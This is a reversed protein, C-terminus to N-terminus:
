RVVLTVTTTHRLNGSVATITLVYTGRPTRSSTTVTMTSSNATTNNPAFTASARSPLGSASFTVAGTFGGTGTITLLYTTQGGRTVTRSSPSASITFDAVTVTVTTSHTNAGESGTVTVTYTGTAVSAGVNVTLTASNGASVATPNLSATPGSPSVGASLNVTGASGVLTTSITSTGSGGRQISLSTPSASITFDAPPPPATVTVTVTTSHTNAGESGTVTVTYAGTAVSAGVNVTLTSSNGASVAAPSVSATPGSPSVGASLNVTGASGVLTTSITSIGSGGQQTSLSTPSASITFDGGCTSSYTFQDALSTASAGDATTVIVDVTGCGSPAIATLQNPSTVIVNTAANSGFSVTTGLAFFDTGSVTVVTSGAGSTPSISTVAPASFTLRGAFTGWACGADSPPGTTTGNAAYESAVWVDTPNQPDIAAGSYDGWRSAGATGFCPNMNYTTEGAKITQASVVTQVPASAPQGTIRVGVYGVNLPTTTISSINYVVYMSGGADMSLAPYYLDSGNSAIDFSQNITPGSTLVQILRSCPRIVSDNAPVCADNGGTWLVGNEWVATLFRDDNTAISAALGPQDANPPQSTAALAPDAENWALNGGLPTGTIWALGFTPSGKNCGLTSCDSNNYAIYAPSGSSLQVAPVLAAKTSDPGIAAGSVSSSGAVMQSKEFIWTSAGQFFQASLFDNWSIVFKDDSVGFKPQDHTVNSSNDASYQFWTGTPDSNKSVAIVILSGFSPTVFAVGSAFWRQSMQDYLVRPDSFSYTSPVLFFKNLDFLQIPDGGSKNWITGSSNVMEVVHNPGVALGNDPPTVFQDPGLTLQRDLTVAPFSTLVEETSGTAAAQAAQPEITAVSASTRSPAGAGVRLFPHMNSRATTSAPAPLSRVVVSGSRGMLVPRFKSREAAQGTAALMATLLLVSASALVVQFAIRRKM